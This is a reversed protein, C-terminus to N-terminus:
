HNTQMPPTRSSYGQDRQNESSHCWHRVTHVGRLAGAPGLLLAESVGTTPEQGVLWVQHGTRHPHSGRAASGHPPTPASPDPPQQVLILEPPQHAMWWQLFLFPFSPPQPPPQLPSPASLHPLHIPSGGLRPPCESPSARMTRTMRKKM